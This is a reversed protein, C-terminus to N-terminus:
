VTSRVVKYAPICVAPAGPGAGLDGPIGCANIIKLHCLTMILIDHAVFSIAGAVEM